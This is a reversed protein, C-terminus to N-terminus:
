VEWKLTNISHFELSRALNVFLCPLRFFNLPSFSFNNKKRKMGCWEKNAALGGEEKKKEEKKIKEDKRWEEMRREKKEGRKEM